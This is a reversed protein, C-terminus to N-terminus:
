KRKFRWGCFIHWMGPVLTYRHAKYHRWAMLPVRALGGHWTHMEGMVAGMGRLVAPTLRRNGTTVGPHSVIVSPFFRGRYGARLADNLFLQEEGAGFRPAGVGFREDFRVGGRTVVERRLAMEFSTLYYGKVPRALDFEGDPFWKGDGGEHAFAAVDVGANRDFTEIVTELGRRTYHLDDDAILLLGARSTDFAANRNRSLGTGPSEVVRLDDRMLTRPLAGGDAEQWSVTYRVGEVAPLTMRAVREIGARGLTCILVELRVDGDTINGDWCSM